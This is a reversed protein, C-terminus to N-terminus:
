GGFHVSNFEQQADEATRLVHFEKSSPFPHIQLIKRIRLPYSLHPVLIIVVLLLNLLSFLLASLQLVLIVGLIISFTV